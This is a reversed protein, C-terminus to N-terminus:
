RGPGINDWGFRIAPGLLTLPIVRIVAEAEGSLHPGTFVPRVRVAIRSSPPTAYILPTLLGFVHGTEAPDPLGFAGDLRVRHLHFRGLLGAILRPVGRVFGGGRRWRKRRRR